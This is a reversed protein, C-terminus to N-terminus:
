TDWRSSVETQFSVSRQPCMQLIRPVAELLSWKERPSLIIPVPSAGPSLSARALVPM